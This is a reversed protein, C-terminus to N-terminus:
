SAAHAARETLLRRGVAKGVKRLDKMLNAFQHPYLSQDGDSLAVAPNPHVEVILGDAGAAVSALSLAPVLTKNGAAHSPDAIVPLHTEQKLVAIAGVDLTNRYATEFSRIGRECLIVNPNGQLIYETALLFERITNAAGRKLIVPTQVRAMEKLLDFNQMNRAGIRVVDVLEAAIEVDRVDMVETEVLMGTRQRIRSLVHLGEVGLGQFSYPSTRPKFASARMIELGIDRLMLAATVGQEESELACPGGIVVLDESGLQQSGIPIHTSSKRHTKNALKYPKALGYVQQVGPQTRWSAETEQSLNGFVHIQNRVEGPHLAWELAKEELLRTLHDIEQRTAWPHLILVM